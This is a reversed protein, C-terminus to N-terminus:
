LKQVRQVERVGPIKRVGSIIRELHKLDAIDVVIDVTAHTETTKAEINRINTNADSIVATIQKLMGPRNDCLVVLKVAFGTEWAPATGVTGDKGWEVAIRREPEFMLNEVNACSKSHVAVGKGRTVYGIIEEGRIPNCCRARYVLLDNHGKVKIASTDGGFVRRMVSSIGGGDSPADPDAGPEPNAASAPVLRALISRSSFKGYGIGALLDDPRGLGNEAAVRTLEAESIDKMSIRYKRAEKEILKQGIEIARERQHINLWHKIKQRARPSKVFGLWDRNPHHGPQTLIEVIDGSRLKYKLQAIRGNVKAGVCTNGVESHINYAFDVPTAERPLIVIKGKPTFTYVEEPYLDIKLTSLFENPDPVERQWEVVQRLWALRKEDRASIPGDKYKWHAAIGEEAMKHMEETRIQVEFAHGNEAMVTTHLSQYLNPRPMAIMDKIRGPVPRWQNHILGLVAYCDNVSKTIIRLAMMDYIQDVSIHQRVLKQHISYIRKIRGDVVAEINNEKLKAEIVGQIQAMFAEGEKRRSEIAEKVQNFAIPDVYQFSLDELEGRIKGMGLRHAIPAYIELTERAIKMQRDPTLHKLTRMNHLRDALKILVVRIDDVMALVMKRVSEAQAEERSAFDIKSIKTVGEVIHAVQEGFEVRIDDVTVSTDEVADHLLGAAIATTDLRMEALVTAVELPHVLYPEGSARTQGQHNRLSFDYAKKVLTLDDTPRYARIKRLLDRFRTVTLVNTAIQQRFTAM